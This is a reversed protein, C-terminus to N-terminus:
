KWIYIKNSQHYTCIEEVEYKSQENYQASKNM